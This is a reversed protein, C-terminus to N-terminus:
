REGLEGLGQNWKVELVTSTTMVQGGQSITTRHPIRVGDVTRFDAYVEVIRPPDGQVAVGDYATQFLDGSEADIWIRVSRKGDKSAIELEGARRGAQEGEGVFRVTREPDRDALLLAERARFIEGQAQRLQPGALAMYGQMGDIWGEDGSVYVTLKGVDLANTQKLTSPLIYQVTQTGSLGQMFGASQINRVIEADQIEALREIGGAAIQAKFLWHSAMQDPEAALPAAVLAAALVVDFIRM